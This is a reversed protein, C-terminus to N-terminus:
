GAVAVAFCSRMLRGASECLPPQLEHGTCSTRRPHCSRWGCRRRSALLNRSVSCFPPERVSVLEVRALNLNLFQGLLVFWSRRASRACAPPLSSPRFGQTEAHTTKLPDSMRTQSGVGYERRFVTTRCVKRVLCFSHRDVLFLRAVMKLTTPTSCRSVLGKTWLPLLAVRPVHHVHLVV